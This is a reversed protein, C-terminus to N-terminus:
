WSLAAMDSPLFSPLVGRSTASGKAAFIARVAAENGADAALGYVTETPLGVLQGAALADAAAAISAPFQGDLVMAM